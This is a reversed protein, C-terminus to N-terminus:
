FLEVSGAAVSTQQVPCADGGEARLQTVQAAVESEAAVGQGLQEGALVARDVRAMRREVSALLQDVLDAFQLGRVAAAVNEQVRTAVEELRGLEQELSRRMGELREVLQLSRQEVSTAQDMGQATARNLSGRVEGLLERTHGVQETIRGNLEACHTSLDRMAGAVVAFASGIAGARGAEIRANISLIRSQEAIWDLQSMVGMVTEVQELMPDTRETGSQIDRSIGRLAETVSRLATTTEAIFRDINLAAGAQKADGGDVTVLLDRVLARQSDSDEALRYFSSTLSAVADSVVRRARELEDRALRLDERSLQNLQGLLESSSSSVV